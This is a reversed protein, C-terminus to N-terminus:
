LGRNATLNDLQDYHLRRPMDQGTAKLDHSSHKTLNDKRQYAKGGLVLPCLWRIEHQRSGLALRPLHQAVTSDECYARFDTSFVKGSEICRRLGM